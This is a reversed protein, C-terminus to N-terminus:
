SFLIGRQFITNKVSPLSQGQEGFFMQMSEWLPNGPKNLPHPEDLMEEILKKGDLLFNHKCLYGLIDKEKMANLCDRVRNSNIIARNIEMWLAEAMEKKGHDNM